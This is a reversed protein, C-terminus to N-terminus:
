RLIQQHHEKFHQLPNLGEVMLHLYRFLLRYDVFDANNLNSLLEESGDFHLKCDCSGTTPRYYVKIPKIIGDHMTENMSCNETHVKVTEKALWNMAFPDQTDWPNGHQCKDTTFSPIFESPFPMGRNRSRLIQQQHEKLPYSIPSRSIATYVCTIERESSGDEAVLDIDTIIDENKCWEILSIIYRCNYDNKCSECM